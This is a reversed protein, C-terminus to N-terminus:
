KKSQKTSLINAGISNDNKHGSKHDESELSIQPDITAQRVSHTNYIKVLHGGKRIPKLAANDTKSKIQTYSYRERQQMKEQVHGM